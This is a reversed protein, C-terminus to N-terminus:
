RGTMERVLFDAGYITSLAELIGGSHVAVARNLRADYWFAGGLSHINGDFILGVIEGQKNIMPSGSNGGIIDNTTVFNFRQALNLKGKAAHWSAPLAFPEAGTERAFAGGFETFPAIKRGAQEWGQVEGYSLRLSFTADPYSGTGNKAFTAQAILETNKQVVSEVDQEYQKRLARAQADIALALQIFPDDSKAIAEKGGQWLARRVAVDGLRTQGVLQDALQQPSAKGLVQKVFADDPGLKERMKTLSFVLKVKEFEPYIPATSLVHQEVEPMRAEAFEPLRQGDPKTKEDAARVLMRAQEFYDSLLARGGEISRMRATQARYQVQARAIADWAGGVKARLAPNNAVYKRLATEQEHKARLLAPDLLSQLQGYLAKYSNEVGFLLDESTRAAESGSARYQELVGRMEALSLLGDILRIDRLSLLQAETLQRQTSGPHGTVFVMEHEAAGNKSFPFFNQVAAPKGNEYVRVLSMDLDYRPFMFNDPDGGFFAIAKEPAWVLRVDSFRHYKYINYRGGHYLDVLDCRTTAKEVGVCESTLRARVANQADKFANGDLGGTAKKVQETVDTIQELRNVEMAPCRAEQERNRALFGNALYNQTASSLQEICEAACHHNTMVLGDRSVFSASCGGALRASSLMVNKIWAPDPKFGYQAQMKAAPLRDLTWM